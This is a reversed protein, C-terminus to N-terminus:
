ALRRTSQFNLVSYPGRIWFMQRNQTVKRDFYLTKCFMVNIHEFLIYFNLEYRVPFV